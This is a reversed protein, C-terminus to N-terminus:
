RNGPPPPYLHKTGRGRSIPGQDGYIHGTPYIRVKQTHSPHQVGEAGFSINPGEAPSGDSAESHVQLGGVTQLSAPRPPSPISSCWLNRGLVTQPRCKSSAWSPKGRAWTQDQSCRGARSLPLLEVTTNRFLPERPARSGWALVKDTCTSCPM